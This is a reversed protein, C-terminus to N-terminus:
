SRSLKERLIRNVVQPNARGRTKKMVQGVLFMLAKEKGSHFDAVPGPNAQIVEDIASSLESEDSIQILGREKVIETPMKGTKFAEEFVEKAIRVSITGKDILELLSLLHGPGVPSEEISKSASNLLRLLESMMWNSVAKPDKYKRACEEFFDALARSETLFEADYEPLGYERMFRDRKEAPLEPMSRKLKEVWEREIVMPVLDPDPFYRYDHAEEKSRMPMTVGKGEDWHRTERVVKEGRELAMIQRVREYELGKEVARFSNLNKLETQAGFVQSGAPRISINADCRLSGEEMKCDSVGIYRLINRLTNLYIYAEHPSRIDPESVIEMLPIGARNYDELSFRSGMIDSGEHISKGAEEELHVRRVGIRKQEGDVSIIISGKFGLPLDYQSIQYNKPLDPYFYNKRDFKSFNSVECNLALATLIAFEVAKKNVVPLVGPLGLCVPCTHTNPDAGFKTSCGCFIKSETLLQVHVELGIVTEYKEEVERPLTSELAITLWSVERICTM